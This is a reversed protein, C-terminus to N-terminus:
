DNLPVIGSARGVDSFPPGLQMTQLCSAGAEIQRSTFSRWVSSARGNAPLAATSSVLTAAATSGAEQLGDIHVLRVAPADIHALSFEHAYSLFQLALGWVLAWECLSSASHVSLGFAYGEDWSVSSTFTVAFSVTLVLVVLTLAIRARHLVTASASLYFRHMM